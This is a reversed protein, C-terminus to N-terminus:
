RVLEGRSHVALQGRLVAVRQASTAQASHEAFILDELLVLCAFGNAFQERVHAVTDSLTKASWLGFRRTILYIIVLLVTRLM